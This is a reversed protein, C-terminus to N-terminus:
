QTRQGWPSFVVKPQAVLTRFVVDVTLQIESLAEAAAKGEQTARYLHPTMTLLDMIQAHQLSETQYTLATTEALEFGEPIAVDATPTHAKISPYIIERLEILHQPGSEVVILRGNPKLISHFPAYCPFGFVALILDVTAAQLPPHKNTGVLWVLEANRKAAAMIAWKSVDLGVFATTTATPWVQQLCDLYYGDGCGADLVVDLGAQTCALENLRTAIPQYVGKDLFRSRAVMMAKSDGPDKSAKQQVLLLNAYGQKAVDFCHGNTCVLQQGSADFATGDLPCALHHIHQTIATM